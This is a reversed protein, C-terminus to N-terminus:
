EFIAKMRKNHTKMQKLLELQVKARQLNHTPYDVKYYVDGNLYDGYFRITQEHMILLCFLTLNSREEETIFDKVQNLYSASYIEFRQLNFMVNNLDQEDERNDNCITRVGDGFDNGLYGPMVTDLDILCLATGETDFLINSLKPDNHVVRKPLQSGQKIKLFAQILYDFQRLENYFDLSSAYRDNNMLKIGHFSEFTQDFEHFNPITEKLSYIGMDVTMNHFMGLIKGAEKTLRTNILTSNIPHHEIYNMLRWYFGQYFVYQKKNNLNMSFHVIEYGAYQNSKEKKSILHDNLHNINSMLVESNKFVEKNIRQLVYYRKDTKDDQVFYSKNILGESIEEYKWHKSAQGLFSAMINDLGIENNM